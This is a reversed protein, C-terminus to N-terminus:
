PGSVPVCYRDSIKVVRGLLHVLCASVDCLKVLRVDEAPWDRGPNRGHAAEIGCFGIVLVIQDPM